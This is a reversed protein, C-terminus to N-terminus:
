GCRQGRYHDPRLVKKARRSRPRRRMRAVSRMSKPKANGCNHCLVEQWFPRVAFTLDILDMIRISSAPWRFRFRRFLDQLGRGPCSSFQPQRSRPLYPASPTPSTMGLFVGWWRLGQALPPPMAEMRGGCTTWRVVSRAGLYKLSLFSWRRRFSRHVCFLFHM